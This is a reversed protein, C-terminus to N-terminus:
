AEGFFRDLGDNAALCPPRRTSSAAMEVFTEARLSPAGPQDQRAMKEACFLLLSFM